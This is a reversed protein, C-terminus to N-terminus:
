INGGNQCITIGDPHYTLKLAKSILKSAEMIDNSTGSDLEEVDLVHQKPLILTHGTNFPAHDLICTVYENKYVIYTPLQHNALKCGLCNNNKKMDNRERNDINAIGLYLQHIIYNIYFFLLPTRMSLVFIM